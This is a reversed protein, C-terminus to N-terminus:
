VSVHFPNFDTGRDYFDVGEVRKLVAVVKYTIPTFVIEIVVKFLYNSVILSWAIEWPFVGLGCAIIVFVSTDLAQGVLTSGVTRMWLRKGSMAVKM